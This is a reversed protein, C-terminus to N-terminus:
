ILIPGSTLGSSPPAVGTKSYKLKQNSLLALAWLDGIMLRGLLPAAGRGFAPGSM